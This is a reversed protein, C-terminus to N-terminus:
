QYVMICFIRKFININHTAIFSVFNIFSKMIFNNIENFYVDNTTTVFFDVRVYSKLNLKNYLTMADVRIREKISAPLHPLVIQKYDDNTIYKDEFTFRTNKKIVEGIDSCVLEEGCRLLGISLERFDQLSTEILIVEDLKFAENIVNHITTNDAYYVGISSGGKNVKVVYNEGLKQVDKSTISILDYKNFCIYPVVKISHLEAVYKCLTKNFCVASGEVDNGTYKIQNMRLFGQLFGDEGFQGHTALFARYIPTNNIEGKGIQYIDACDENIHITNISETNLLIDDLTDSYKWTGNKMIGIFIIHYMNTEHLTKGVNYGSILSVTHEFSDCGFIIAINKKM